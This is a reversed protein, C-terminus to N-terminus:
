LSINVAGYFFRGIPNVISTDYGTADFGGGHAGAYFVPVKADTLDSVGFSVKVKSLWPGSVSSEAFDYALQIDHTAYSDVKVGDGITPDTYSGAYRVGYTASWAQYRWNGTLGLRTKPLGSVSPLSSALATRGAYDTFGRGTASDVEFVKLRSGSLNLMLSGWSLTPLRYSIELDTGEVNQGVANMFLSVVGSQGNPATYISGPQVGQLVLQPHTQIVINEQEIRWRDIVLSLGRISQPTFVFGFNTYKATEPELDKNGGYTVQYNQSQGTAPNTLTFIQTIQAGEVADLSPARFSTGYSARAVLTDAIPEWRLGISPNVSTGAGEIDEYRAAADLSLAAAGPVNFDPGLIPLQAEVYAAFYDRAVDVRASSVANFEHNLIREDPDVTVSDQRYETGVAVNLDGAPLSLVPAYATANFLMMKSKAITSAGSFVGELQEPTNCANCFLNIAAAGPRNEAAYLGANTPLNFQYSDSRTYFVAGGVDYHVRGAEGKVGLNLNATDSTINFTQNGAEPFGYTVAVIPEGFPNWYYDAPIPSLQYPSAHDGYGDSGFVNGVSDVESRAYEFDAYLSAKEAFKYDMSGFAISKTQTNVLSRRGENLGASCGAAYAHPDLPVYDARDRSFEGCTFRQQDLVLPGTGDPLIIQALASYAFPVYHFGPNFRSLDPNASLPRDANAIGDRQYYELVGFFNLKDNAVGWSASARTTPTDGADSQGFSTSFSAGDASRKTIINVVGAVADSGYVASAGDKLVEIREIADLPILDINAPDEGQFRRGNLLVLTYQPGIGRLNLTTGGLTRGNYASSSSSNTYSSQGSNIFSAQTEFYDQLNSAGSAQIQEASIVAVPTSQYDAANASEIRSGTVTITEVSQSGGADQAVGRKSVASQTPGESEAAGSSPAVLLAAAALALTTCISLPKDMGGMTRYSMM